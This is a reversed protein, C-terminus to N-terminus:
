KKDNPIIPLKQLAKLRPKTRFIVGVKYPDINKIDNEGLAKNENMAKIMWEEPNNFKEEAEKLNNFSSSPPSIIVDQTNIKYFFSLSYKKEKIHSLLMKGKQKDAVVKLIILTRREDPSTKEPDTLDFILTDKRINIKMEIGLASLNFEDSAVWNGIPLFQKQGIANLFSFNLLILILIVKKM